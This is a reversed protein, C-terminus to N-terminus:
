QGRIGIKRSMRAAEEKLIQKMSKHRDRSIIYKDESPENRISSENGVVPADHGPLKDAQKYHEYYILKISRIPPEGKKMRELNVEQAKEFLKKFAINGPDKENKPDKVKPLKGQMYLDALDSDLEKQLQDNFSQQTQKQKLQLEEQKKVEEQKIRDKEALEERIEEKALEKAIRVNESSLEEYSKPIPNGDQDKGTFKPKLEKHRKKEKEQLELEKQKEEHELRQKELVENAAKAAIESDRKKAQEEEDLKAKADIAEQEMKQRDLKKQKEEESEVPGKVEELPKTAYSEKQLQSFSKSRIEEIFPKDQLPKDIKEEAPIIVQDPM